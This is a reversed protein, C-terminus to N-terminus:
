KSVIAKSVWDCDCPPGSRLVAPFRHGIQHMEDTAPDYSFYEARDARLARMAKEFLIKLQAGPELVSNLALGADYLMELQEARTRTEIILRANRVASATRTAFLTLLRVDEEGFRLATDGLHAVGLVGILEGADVM